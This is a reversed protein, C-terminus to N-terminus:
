RRRARALAEAHTRIAELTGIYEGAFCGTELDIGLEPSGGYDRELELLEKKGRRQAELDLEVRM